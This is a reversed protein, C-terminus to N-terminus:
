LTQNGETKAPEAQYRRLAAEMEELPAANGTFLEVQRAAQHLLMRRGDVALCGLSRATRLLASDGSLAAIDMVASSPNLTLPDIVSPDTQTAGVPTANVVLDFDKPRCEDIRGGFAVALQDALTQGGTANRSFVVASAGAAKVGYAVARAAGGAGLIAVRAGRGMGSESMAAHAGCYDTNTGFLSGGDNVVTNVAGIAAAEPSLRDMYKMIQVKFPMSVSVGRVGLAKIALLADSLSAVGFSVFTFKRELATYASNHMDVVLPHPSANLSGFLAPITRPLAASETPM